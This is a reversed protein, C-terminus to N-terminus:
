GAVEPAEAGWLAWGARAARANLEIKPLSPWLREAFVHAYEPKESHAAVPWEIVSTDQGGMAPPVVDGRTGVLLLEHKNRFWYGTGAKDKVWVAHSKYAFGWASMVALAQPLMPATAWLLLVCDEAAIRAVPRAMIADLSSCPYHNEASRDMGGEGWVEFRWEPDALIVGYRPGDGAGALAENAARLREGLAAERAKRGEQKAQKQAEKRAKIRQYAAAIAQESIADDGAGRRAEEVARGAEHLTTEGRAAEEALAPADRLLARASKVSRPSVSLLAAADDVTVDPSEGTELPLNAGQERRVGGHGMTAIRAAVLARQTEDLHRRAINLSVVLAPLASVAVHSIDVAWGALSVADHDEALMGAARLARYRNRGDVISGRWLRIPERLGHTRIDETLRTFEEGEILPFVDALPHFPIM